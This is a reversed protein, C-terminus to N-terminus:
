LDYIISSFIATNTFPAVNYGTAGIKVHLPKAYNGWTNAQVAPAVTSLIRWETVLTMSDFSYNNITTIGSSEGAVTVVEKYGKLTPDECLINEPKQYYIVEGNELKGYQM